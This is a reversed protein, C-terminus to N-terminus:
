PDVKTCSAAKGAKSFCIVKIKIGLLQTNQCATALILDAQNHCRTSQYLSSKGKSPDYHRWRSWATLTVRRPSQDTSVDTVTQWEVRRLICSSLFGRIIINIYIGVFESRNTVHIYYYEKIHPLPVHLTLITKQKIERRNSSDPVTAVRHIHCMRAVSSQWCSSSCSIDFHRNQSVDNLLM